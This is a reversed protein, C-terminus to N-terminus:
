DKFVIFEMERIDHGDKCCEFRKNIERYEAISTRQIDVFDQLESQFDPENAMAKFDQNYAKGLATEMGFAFKLVAKLDAFDYNMEVAQRVPVVGNDTAFKQLKHAHKAEDKYEGVFFKSANPYGNVDCWMAAYQYAQYATWEDKLRATIVKSAENTLM